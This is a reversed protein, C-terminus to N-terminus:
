KSGDEMARQFQQLREWAKRAANCLFFRAAREGAERSGAMLIPVRYTAMWSLASHCVSKPNIRSRFNGNELDAWSAEVIVARQPYAMMRHLERTFREREPGCCSVFDSLSKRELAVEKELGQVTYDATPLTGVIAKLPDLRYPTQERSDQVVTVMEPLFATM